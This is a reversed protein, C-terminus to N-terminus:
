VRRVVPTDTESDENMVGAEIAQLMARLNCDHEEALDVYAAISQGDLQETEAIRKAHEAFVRALDRTTLDLCACRSLLPHADIQGDFLRDEGELTTTFIVIVHAPLRELLVLLQRITDQRLGHAENVIYARGPKDGMGYFSMASEIARLAAPSCDTADIENVNFPDAIEDAILRAITTKGTGSAGSIWFARGGVGRRAIARFQAVAKDQGIVEEWTSPRYQEHLQM